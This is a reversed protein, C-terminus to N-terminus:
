GCAHDQEQELRLRLEAWVPVNVERIGFSTTSDTPRGTDAEVRAGALSTCLGDSTSWASTTNVLCEGNGYVHRWRHTGQAVTTDAAPKPGRGHTDAPKQDGHVLM